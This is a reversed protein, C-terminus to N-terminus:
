AVFCLLENIVNCNGLSGLAKDMGTWGPTSSRGVRVSHPIAGRAFSQSDGSCIM